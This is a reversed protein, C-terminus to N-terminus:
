EPNEFVERVPGIPSMPRDELVPRTIMRLGILTLCSGLGFVMWMLANVSALIEHDEGIRVGDLPGIPDHYYRIWAKSALYFGLATSALLCAVGGIFIVVGPRGRM